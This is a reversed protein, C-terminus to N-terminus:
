HVAEKEEREEYGSPSVGFHKKFAKSFHSYDEFGVMRSIQAASDVRNSILRAAKRLRISRILESPPFGTVSKIKRHLSTRSMNMEAAMKEVSMEPDAINAEVTAIAKKLLKQDYSEAVDEQEEPLGLSRYKNATDKQQRSLYDIRLNLMERNKRYRFRQMVVVAVSVMALLVILGILLNKWITQIRKENELLRINQEKLELEHKAELEVIQRVKSTNLLSDRVAYYRQLYTVAESGRGQQLRIDVLGAYANRIVRRLGLANALGLANQLYGEANKLDKSRLYARGMIADISAETIKNGTQIALTRAERFHYFARAPDKMGYCEGINSMIRPMHVEDVGKDKGIAYAKNYFYLASDTKDNVFYLVGTLNYISCLQGWNNNQKALAESQAILERAKRREGLDMYGRALLYKSDAQIITYHDPEAIELASLAAQIALDNDGFAWFCFAKLNNAMAIGKRFNLQQSQQLAEEAYNLSRYPDTWQDKRSFELLQNVAATDAPQERQSYASVTALMLITLVGYKM